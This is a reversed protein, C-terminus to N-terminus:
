QPNEIGQGGRNPVGSAGPQGGLLDDGIQHGLKLKRQLLDARIDGANQGSPAACRVGGGGPGQMQSVAPDGQGDGIGFEGTSQRREDRMQPDFGVTGGVGAQSKRSGSGVPLQEHVFREGNSAVGAIRGDGSGHGFQPFGSAGGVLPQQDEVGGPNALRTLAHQQDTGAAHAFGRQGDGEVRATPIQQAVVHNRDGRRALQQAEAHARAQFGATPRHQRRPQGVQVM